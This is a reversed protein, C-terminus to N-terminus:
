VRSWDFTSNDLNGRGVKSANQFPSELRLAFMDGSPMTGDNVGTPYIYVLHPYQECLAKLENSMGDKITFTMSMNLNDKVSMTNGFLIKLCELYDPISAQTNNILRVRYRILNRFNEATMLHQSAITEGEAKYTLIPREIDLVGAWVALGFETANDFDAVDRFWNDWFNKTSANFFEKLMDMMGILHPANDYQWLICKEIEDGDSNDIAFESM